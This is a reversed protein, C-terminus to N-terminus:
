PQDAVRFAGRMSPHIRCFYTYTGDPLDTPTSWTVRGATPPGVAGLEGSDFPIDADARPYAIGTSANCPAKCATITHWV